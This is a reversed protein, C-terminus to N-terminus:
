IYSILQRQGRVAWNHLYICQILIFHGWFVMLLWALSIGVNTYNLKEFTHWKAM